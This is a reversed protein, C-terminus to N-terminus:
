VCGEGALALDYRKQDTLPREVYPDFPQWPYDPPVLIISRVCDDQLLVSLTPLTWYPFFQDARAQIRAFEVYGRSQELQHRLAELTAQWGAQSAVSYVSALLVFGVCSLSVVRDVRLPLIILGIAVLMMAPVLTLTLTRGSFSQWADPFAGATIAWVLVSGSLVLTAAAIARSSVVASLVFGAMFILGAIVLPSSLPLLATAAFGMMNTPDRPNLAGHLGFVVGCFLIAVLLAWYARDYKGPAPFLVLRGMAAVLIVALAGMGGEYSRAAIVAFVITVSRDLWNATPSLVFILVPWALFLLVQHEGMAIYDSQFLVVCLCIAYVTFLYLKGGCLRVSFIVSVFLLLFVNLEYLFRLLKVDFDTTLAFAVPLFQNTYQAFHRHWGVLFFQKTASIQLIYNAGDAGLIKGSILAYAFAILIFAACLYVGLEPQDKGGGGIMKLGGGARLAAM